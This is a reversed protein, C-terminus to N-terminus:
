WVPHRDTAELVCSPRPNRCLGRKKTFPYNAPLAAGSEPSAAARNVLEYRPRRYGDGYGRRYGYAEGHRGYGRGYGRGYSGSRGYRQRDLNDQIIQM